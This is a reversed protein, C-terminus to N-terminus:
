SLKLGRYVLYLNSIQFYSLSLPACLLPMGDEIPIVLVYNERAGCVLALGM